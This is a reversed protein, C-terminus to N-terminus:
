SDFEHIGRGVKIFALIRLCFYVWKNLNLMAGVGLFYSPMWKLTSDFIVLEWSM